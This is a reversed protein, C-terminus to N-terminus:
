KLDVVSSTAFFFRPRRALFLASTVAFFGMMMQSHRGQLLSCLLTAFPRADNFDGGYNNNGSEGAPLTL